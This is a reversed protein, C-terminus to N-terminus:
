RSGECLCAIYKLRFKTRRDAKEYLTKETTELLERVTRRQQATMAHDSYAAEQWIPVAAAYQAAYDTSLLAGASGECASFSRNEAALGCAQLWDMVHRFMARIAAANDADAFAAQRARARRRARTLLLFPLFPLVLVAVVALLLLITRLLDFRQPLSIEQESQTQHAFAQGGAETQEASAAEEHQRSEQHTRNVEEETLPARQWVDSAAESLMDRVHESQTEVAANPQPAILVVALLVAAAGVPVAIGHGERGRALLWALLAFLVASRRLPPMVGFYALFAALGLFLAVAAGRARCVACCLAGGLVAILPLAAHIATDEPASVSFHHYAYANVAESADFLRNGLALAGERASPLLALGALACLAAAALVARSIRRPLLTGAAIVAAGVLLALADFPAGFLPALAFILAAFLALPPLLSALSAPIRREAQSLTHLQLAKAHEM